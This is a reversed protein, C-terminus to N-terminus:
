MRWFRLVRRVYCSLVYSGVADCVGSGYCVVAMVFGFAAVSFGFPGRGCVSGCEYGFVVCLLM